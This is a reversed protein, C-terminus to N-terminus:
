GTHHRDSCVWLSSPIGHALLSFDELLEAKFRRMPEGVHRIAV